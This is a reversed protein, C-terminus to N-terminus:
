IGRAVRTGLWGAALCLVVTAVVYVGAKRADGTSLAALTEQNFSSYTTFGGLLGTALTLRWTDSLGRSAVSAVVAMAFCGIVNVTFTGIPLEPGFTRTSWLGVLYRAASGVGGALFVCLLERM